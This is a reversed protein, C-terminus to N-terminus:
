MLKEEFGSDGETRSLPDAKDLSLGTMIMGRSLSLLLLM